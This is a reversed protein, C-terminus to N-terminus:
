IVIYDKFHDPLENLETNVLDKNLEAYILEKLEPQMAKRIEGLFKPPACLVLRDFRGQMRYNNLRDLLHLTSQQASQDQHAELKHRHNTFSDFTRGPAGQSHEQSDEKLDFTKVLKLGQGVATNEIIKASNSDALVFWTKVFKM